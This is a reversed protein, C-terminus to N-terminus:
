NKGFVEIRIRLLFEIDVHTSECNLLITEYHEQYLNYFSIIEDFNPSFIKAQNVIMRGILRAKGSGAPGVVTSIRKNM